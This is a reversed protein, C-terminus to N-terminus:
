EAMGIHSWVQIDHVGSRRSQAKRLTGEYAFGAKNLARQEPINEVDTQAEVRVIGQNHLEEALLRQAIAGIGFGRHTDLLNIGINMARSGATPGYWVSHGSLNGVPIVEGTPKTFEILWHAIRLAAAEQVMEGWDDYESPSQPRPVSDDVERISVTGIGEIDDSSM